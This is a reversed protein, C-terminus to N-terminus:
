SKMKKKEEESLKEDIGTKNRMYKLLSYGAKNCKKILNIEYVGINLAEAKALYEDCLKQKKKEFYFQSLYEYGVFKEGKINTKEAGEVAKKYLKEAKSNSGGFIRPAFFYWGALSVNADISYPDIKIAKEFMKKVKFGYHIVATFSDTMYYCTVDGIVIYLWKSIKDESRKNICNFGQNMIEGMIKRLEAKNEDNVSHDYIEMFYFGRLILYEQEYDKANEKLNKLCNDQAEIIKQLTEPEESKKYEVRIDLFEDLKSQTYDSLIEDAFLFVNIFLFVLFMFLRKIM